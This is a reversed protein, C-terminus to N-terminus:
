ILATRPAPGRRGHRDTDQSHHTARARQASPPARLARSRNRLPRAALTSPVRPPAPPPPWPWALCVRLWRSRQLWCTPQTFAGNIDTAVTPATGASDPHSFTLQSTTRIHHAHSTGTLQALRHDGGAGIQLRGLCGAGLQLRLQGPLLRPLSLAGQQDQGGRRPSALRSIQGPTAQCFLPVCTSPVCGPQSAPQSARASPAPARLLLLRRRPPAAALPLHHPLQTRLHAPQPALERRGLHHGLVRLAPPCQLRAGVVRLRQLDARCTSSTTPCRGSHTNAPLRAWEPPPPSRNLSSPQSAAACFGSRATAGERRLQRLDPGERL